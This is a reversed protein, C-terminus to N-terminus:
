ALSAGADYTGPWEDGPDRPERRGGLLRRALALSRVGPVFRALRGSSRFEIREMRGVIPDREAVRELLRVWTDKMVAELYQSPLNMAGFSLRQRLQEDELRLVAAAALDPHAVPFVLGNVGERILGEETRGVFDAVIPIVGHAMAESVVMPCGEAPSFLVLADIEPYLRDYLTERSVQGWFTVCDSLGMAGVEAELSSREPGDGAVIVRVERAAVSTALPILDHIRKEAQDLRGVVGIRLPGPRRPGRVRVAPTPVGAPIHVVETLEGRLATALREVVRRSVATAADLRPGCRVVDRVQTEAQGHLCTVLHMDSGPRKWAAAAFLADALGVPVVVHPRVSAFAKWLAAIRAERVGGRGDLTLTKAGSCPHSQLWRDADHFKVGQALGVYVDFGRRALESTLSELWREMGGGTYATQTCFLM